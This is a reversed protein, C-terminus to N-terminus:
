NILSYMTKYDKRKEGMGTPMSQNQQIALGDAFVLRAEAVLM